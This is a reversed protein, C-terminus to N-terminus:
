ENILSLNSINDGTNDPQFKSCLSPIGTGVCVPFYIDDKPMEYDKHTVVIIKGNM